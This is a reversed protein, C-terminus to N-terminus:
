SSEAPSDIGHALLWSRFSWAAAKRQAAWDNVEGVERSDEGGANVADM